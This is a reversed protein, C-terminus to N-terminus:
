VAGVLAGAQAFHIGARLDVLGERAEVHELAMGVMGLAAGVRQREASRGLRQLLLNGLKAIGLLHIGLEFSQLGADGLLLASGISSTAPIKTPASAITTRNM